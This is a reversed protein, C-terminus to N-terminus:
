CPPSGFRHSSGFAIAASKLVANAIQSDSLPRSGNFNGFDSHRSRSGWYLGIVILPAIVMGAAGGVFNAPSEGKVRWALVWALLALLTTCLPLVFGRETWELWLQAARPTSFPSTGSRGPLPIRRVITDIWREVDLGSGRRLNGFGATGIAVCVGIGLEAAVVHLGNLRQGFERFAERQPSIWEGVLFGGALVSAGVVTCQLGFSNATSWLIVQCYAILVAALLGPALIGWGADFVANMLLAVHAYQLFITMMSCAMPVVFLMLNSVPLTYRHRPSGLAKIISAWVLITTWYLAFRFVDGIPTGARMTCGNVNLLFPVLISILPALLLVIWNRAWFEWALATAVRLNQDATRNM